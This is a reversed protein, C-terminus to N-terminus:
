FKSPDARGLNGALGDDVAKLLKKYANQKKSLISILKLGGLFLMKNLNFLWRNKITVPSYFYLRNRIHYYIRFNWQDLLPSAFLKKQYNIGQSPDIDVVKAAPILWITANNQTIRFTYESDDVYLFFAENPYSIKTLMEQHLLLGGYPVYPIKVQNQFPKEAVFRDKLKLFQNYFIRKLSFGLFNDPVLYYRNPNEGQAIKVHPKRDARLCFLAKEDNGGPLKEWDELLIKLANKDPLNDDDLLWFFDAAINENAYKLAQHYGGASGKNEANVLIKVRNDDLASAEKLVSYESANDVVIVQVVEAFSLVRQLVQQLFRWRNGYTVTLVCVKYKINAM